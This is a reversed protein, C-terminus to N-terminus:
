STLPCPRTRSPYVASRAAQRDPRRLPQRFRSRADRREFPLDHQPGSASSAASPSVSTARARAAAAAASALDTRRHAAPLDPRAPRAHQLAAGRLRREQRPHGQGPDRAPRGTPARARCTPTSRGSPTALRREASTAAPGPRVKKALHEAQRVSLDGEVIEHALAEPDPATAIARAHGMSIDGRLLMLRVPDPLELLRLLNAVHSRSKGM